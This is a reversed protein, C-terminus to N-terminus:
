NLSDNLHVGDLMNFFQAVSDDESLADRVFVPSWILSSSNHELFDSVRADRDETLAYLSPFRDRLLGGGGWLCGGGWKHHWFLFPPAMVWRSLKTFSSDKGVELLSRGFVLVMGSPKTPVWNLGEVGYKTEAV